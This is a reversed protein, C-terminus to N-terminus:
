RSLMDNPDRSEFESVFESIFDTRQEMARENATNIIDELSEDAFDGALELILQAVGVELTVYMGGQLDLGLSLSRSQINQLRERNEDFYQIREAEPMNNMHRQELTWQVTPFLYWITMGLFLVICGIKFGNNQKKM